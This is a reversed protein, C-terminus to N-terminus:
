RSYERGGTDDRNGDISCHRVSDAVTKSVADVFRGPKGDPPTYEYEACSCPNLTQYFHSHPRHLPKWNEWDQIVQRMEPLYVMNDIRCVPIPFYGPLNMATSSFDAKLGEVGREKLIKTYDQDLVTKNYGYMAFGWVASTIADWASIKHDNYVVSKSLWGTSTSGQSNPRLLLAMGLEGNPGFTVECVVAYKWRPNNWFREYCDEKHFGKVHNKYKVNDGFAIFIIYGDNDTIAKTVSNLVMFKEFWATIKAGFGQDNFIDYVASGTWVGGEFMYSIGDQGVDQSKLLDTFGLQTKKLLKQASEKDTSAKAFQSEETSPDGAALKSTIDTAVGAVKSLISVGRLVMGLWQAGPVLLTLISLAFVIIGLSAALTNIANKWSQVAGKVWINQVVIEITTGISGMVSEVSSYLVQLFDTFFMTAQSALVFQAALVMLDGAKPEILGRAKPEILGRAEVHHSSWWGSACLQPISPLKCSYSSGLSIDCHLNALDTPPLYQKVLKDRFTDLDKIDNKKLYEKIWDDVQYAGWQEPSASWDEDSCNKAVPLGCPPTARIHLTYTQNHDRAAIRQRVVTGCSSRILKKIFIGSIALAHQMNETVIMTWINGKRVMKGDFAQNGDGNIGTCASGQCKAEMDILEAGPGPTFVMESGPPGYDGEFSVYGTSLTMLTTYSYDSATCISPVAGLVAQTARTYTPEPTSTHIASEEDECDDLEPDQTPEECDDTTATRLLSISTPSPSHKPTTEPEDCDESSKNHETTHTPRKNGWTSIPSHILSKSQSAALVRPDPHRKAPLDRPNLTPAAHQRVWTSPFDPLHFSPTSAGWSSPSLTM